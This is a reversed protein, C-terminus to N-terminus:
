SSPVTAEPSPTLAQLAEVDQRKFRFHGQKDGEDWVKYAPLRPDGAKAWHNVTAWSLGLIGAAQDLSLWQEETPKKAMM